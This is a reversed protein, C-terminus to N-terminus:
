NCYPIVSSDGSPGRLSGSQRGEVWKAHIESERNGPLAGELRRHFGRNAARRSELLEELEKNTETFLSPLAGNSDDDQDKGSQCINVERAVHIATLLADGTVMAVGMGGEKLRGLVM